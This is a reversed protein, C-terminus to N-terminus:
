RSDERDERDASSGDRFRAFSIKYSESSLKLEKQQNAM